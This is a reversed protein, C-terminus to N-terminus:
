KPNLPAPIISNYINRTEQATKQWSFRQVNAASQTLIESRIGADNWLKAIREAMNEATSPNFYLAGDGLIERLVPIDSAAVPAGAAQAEIGILGFGETLSPLAFVRATRYLVGLDTETVFGLVRIDDAHKISMVEAKIEPYFDDIKGALVLQCDIGYKDRVLDFSKALGPLNKYQRWVGVFLLFPKTINHRKLVSESVITSNLSPGAGEYVVKIKQSKQHFVEVIDRKTAESVAIVAKARKVAAWIVLRYALRHLLRAKKRGPYRHHIIDHITVVFKGPYLIPANFSPFHVLDPRLRALEWIFYTQEMWSYYRSRVKVIQFNEAWPQDAQPPSIENVILIYENEHDIAALNKVLEEVYRGIGEGTGAMRCDIVIRM